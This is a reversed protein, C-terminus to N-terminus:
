PIDYYNGSIMLIMCHKSTHTAIISVALDIIKIIAINQKVIIAYWFDIGGM